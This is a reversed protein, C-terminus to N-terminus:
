ANVVEVGTINITVSGTGDAYINGLSIGVRNDNNLADSTATGTITDAGDTTGNVVTYTIEIKKGANTEGNDFGIPEVWASVATGTTAINAGLDSLEFNKAIENAIMTGTTRTVQTVLEDDVTVIVEADEAVGNIKGTIKTGNLAMAAGDFTADVGDITATIKANNIAKVYSPVTLEVTLVGTTTRSSAAGTVVNKDAVNVAAYKTTYDGAVPGGVPANNGEDFASFVGTNDIVLVELDTDDGGTTSTTFWVNYEFSGDANEKGQALTAKDWVIGINEEKDAASDVVLVHTDSTVNLQKGGIVIMDDADDAANGGVYFFDDDFQAQQDSDTADEVTGFDTVDSIVGESDITSYGILTGKAFNDSGNMTVTKNESGTWINIVTDGDGNVYSASTVYAYNDSSAGTININGVLVSALRVRNLGNVSKTFVAKAATGNNAIDATDLAKFQKGTIQKSQGAATYLIIVADDAVATGNIEGNDPDAASGANGQTDNAILRYGNYEKQHVNYLELNELRVSTDSGSVRYAAGLTPTNITNQDSLTVIKNTGDFYRLRIQDGYVSANGGTGVVVAINSPIAGTGDDSKIDIAIGNVVYALVTDGRTVNNATDNDINYWTGGIQYQQYTTQDKIGTLVDSVVDAKVIDLCEDFPNYSMVAYDNKAIDDAINEDEMQYTTGATIRDSGVYTVKATKYETIIAINLKGDGDNDVFRVSATILKATGAADTTPDADYADFDAASMTGNYNVAEANADIVVVDIENNDFSYSTGGFKVKNGDDEVDKMDATYVTNDGTAFVGIVENAKNNSFLVKVKQGLLSTYDVSLNTFATRTNDSDEVDNADQIITLNDGNITALTGINTWLDMWKKGVSQRNGTALGEDGDYVFSSVFESWVVADMSLANALIQAADQRTCGGSIASHVDDTLGYTTAYSLTNNLWATGTLGAKDARYGALVLAMKMAEGTTVTSDPDFITQATNKGAVIGTNQLYKIYGEAWHGSIDTFSTAVSEYSSADDNGGNRIVYIMKAMEARTVTGDPQFSGDEYGKIVGLTTLVDVADANDANIDAEDTFSAAGAFMTFACAFALVLALVKKLNKM